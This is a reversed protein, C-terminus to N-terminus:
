NKQIRIRDYEERMQTFEKGLMMCMKSKIGKGLAHNHAMSADYLSDFPGKYYRWKFPYSSIFLYYKNPELEKM